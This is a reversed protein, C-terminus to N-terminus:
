RTAPCSRRPMGPTPITPMWEKRDVERHPHRRVPAPGYRRRDRAGPPRSWRLYQLYGDRYQDHGPGYVGGGGRVGRLDSQRLAPGPLAAGRLARGAGPFAVTPDDLSCDGAVNTAGQGSRIKVRWEVDQGVAGIGPPGGPTDVNFCPDGPDLGDGNTDVAVCKDLDLPCHAVNIAVTPQGAAQLPQPQDCEGNFLAVSQINAPFSDNGLSDVQVDWALACTSNAGLTISTPNNGGDLFTFEVVNGAVNTDVDAVPCTTSVGGQFSIM